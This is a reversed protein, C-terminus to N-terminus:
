CCMLCLLPLFSDHAFSFPANLKGYHLSQHRRNRYEIKFFILPIPPVMYEPLLSRIRFFKFTSESYVFLFCEYCM